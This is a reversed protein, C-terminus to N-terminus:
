CITCGNHRRAGRRDFEYDYTMLQQSTSALQAAAQAQAQQLAQMETQLAQLQANLRVVTAVLWGVGVLLAGGSGLTLCLATWRWVFARVRHLEQVLQRRANEERSMWQELVKKGGKSKKPKIPAASSPSATRPGPPGAATHVAAEATGGCGPKSTAAEREEGRPGAPAATGRLIADADREDDSDSSSVAAAAAADVYDHEVAGAEDGAGAAVPASASAARRLNDVAGFINLTM